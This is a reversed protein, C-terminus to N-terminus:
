SHVARETHGFNVHSLGPDSKGIRKRDAAEILGEAFIADQPFRAMGIRIPGCDTSEVKAMLRNLMPGYQDDDVEPVLALVREGVQAIDAFARLEADLLECVCRLSLASNEAQRDVSLVVFSSGDRRARCLERSLSGFFLNENQELCVGSAYRGEAAGRAAGMGVVTGAALVGWLCALEPWGGSQDGLFIWALSSVAVGVILVDIGRVSPHILLLPAAVACWEDWSFGGGWPKVILLAVAVVLWILWLKYALFSPVLPSM